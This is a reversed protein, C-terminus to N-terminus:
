LMVKQNGCESFKDVINAMQGPSLFQPKKVNIVADTAAMAAVLDTQRALFAPLQIVDCVEAVPAAQSVEHVDTIVPVNFTSKIEAFIKLGEDLGPGRFSHISSRNAKDFSAKFVYPINLKETVNVYAEAVRMAMDRSEFVNIGGFLTMSADNSVGIQGVQIAKSAM